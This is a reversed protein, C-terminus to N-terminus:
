HPKQQTSSCSQKSSAAQQVNSANSTEAFVDFTLPHYLVSFVSVKIFGLEEANSKRVYFLIYAQQQLVHNLGVSNVRTDDMLHWMNNSNRVYCYYHGSNCSPGLHVLVSNLKYVIPPGQKESMYPRLNLHEPFQIHKTIKGGFQRAFDFRKLQFTAVNPARYVTFQKSAHVKKKCRPCKYANDQNLIEPSVFKDLARELTSVNKIDLMFDMFFDYTNSGHKCEFCDVRSRHYGGFMKNFVTTEKSPGDLKIGHSQEYSNLRAKCM